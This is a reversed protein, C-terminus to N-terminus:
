SATNQILGRWDLAKAGVDLHVDYGIGFKGQQLMWSRMQPARGTGRLYGVEITHARNSALYWTSTSGSYTTGSAPDVVGNSLYPTPRPEAKVKMTTNVNGLQTVTGATGAAVILGSHLIQDVLFDLDAPVIVHTPELNLNVGNEQFKRMAVCAAQFNALSLAATTLKNGNTGTDTFLAVNPGALTPNSLLIASVLSPRLRASANGMEIPIDAFAGWHDDIADQEDYTFQRAYRQVKYSEGTDSRSTHDAEGGRPLKALAGGKVMRPREQSKFDNVEGSSTWGETFDPAENYTALLIVSINTTFINTLTSGSFAAQIRGVRSSPMTRVNGSGTMADIRIAEACLDVVSMDRYKWANDMARLRRPDNAAARLFQPVMEQENGHPDLYKVAALPTQFVPHALIDKQPGNTKGKPDSRLLMACQLAELSCDEDHNHAIVFVDKPRVSRKCELEAQRPTWGQEIAHALISVSKEKGPSAPDDILTELGQYAATACIKRIGSIREEEAVEARRRAQLREADLQEPTKVNPDAARIPTAIPVPPAKEKDWAAQMLTLQKPKLAQIEADTYENAKLWALFEPNMLASGPQCAIKTQTNGDAGHALIAVGKLTSARAVYLPGQLSQGNVTCKEGAEIREIKHVQADISAQYPFGNKSMRVLHRSAQASLDADAPDDSYGSMLGRCKLRQNGPTMEVATTHGVHTGHDKDIPLSQSPIRMGAMDVVIPEARYWGGPHMPGGTYATMQFTPLKKKGDPAPDEALIELEALGGSGRLEFAEETVAGAQIRLNVNQIKNQHMPVPVHGDPYHADHAWRRGTWRIEEGCTQCWDRVGAELKPSHSSM